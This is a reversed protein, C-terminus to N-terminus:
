RRLEANNEAAKKYKAWEMKFSDMIKLQNNGDAVKLLEGLKMDFKNGYRIMAEAIGDVVEQKLM